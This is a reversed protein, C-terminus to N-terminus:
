RWVDQHMCGPEIQGYIHLKYNVNVKIKFIIAYMLNFNLLFTSFLKLM